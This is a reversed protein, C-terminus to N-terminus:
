AAVLEVTHVKGCELCQCYLIEDERVMDTRLFAIVDECGLCNLLAEM